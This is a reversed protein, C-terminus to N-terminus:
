IVNRQHSLQNYGETLELFVLLRLGQAPNMLVPWSPTYVDNSSPSKSM